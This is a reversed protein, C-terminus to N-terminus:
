AKGIARLGKIVKSKSTRVLGFSLKGFVPKRNSLMLGHETKVNISELSIVILLYLKGAHKYIQYSSKNVSRRLISYKGSM